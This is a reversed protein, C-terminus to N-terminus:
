NWRVNLMKQPHNDGNNCKSANGYAATNEAAMKTTFINVVFLVRYRSTPDGWLPKDQLVSMNIHEM